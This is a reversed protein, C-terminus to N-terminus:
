QRARLALILSIGAACVFPSTLLARDRQENPYPKVDVLYMALALVTFLFFSCGCVLRSRWLRPDGLKM